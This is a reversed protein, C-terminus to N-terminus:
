AKQLVFVPEWRYAYGNRSSRQEPRSHMLLKLVRRKSYLRSAMDMMDTAIPHRSTDATNIVLLGGRRLLSHSAALVPYLFQDKWLEYTPYRRYSQTPESSYREVKFYPPSSFILDVSRPGLLPMVDEACGKILEVSTSTLARLSSAMKRLGRIQATAPEIGMYRRKLTLCGLLRGGFGASFDLVTSGDESYRSIIARAAAPRFNSVRGGGYIRLLSRICQANWCRRGPWFNPARSLLKRLTEDNRFHDVPAKAHRGASVDWLGPHFSNALRLGVTATQVAGSQIMANPTLALLQRFEKEREVRTLRPYPFGHRRWYQLAQEIRRDQQRPSYEVIERGLLQTIGHPDDDGAGLSESM